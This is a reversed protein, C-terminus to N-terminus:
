QKEGRPALGYYIINFIAEKREELFRERDFSEENLLLVRIIPEGMFYFLSSGIVTLIIQRPDMKVIEGRNMAEEIIEIGPSHASLESPIAEKLANSVIKGGQSLERMIFMPFRHNKILVDIYKSIFTKLFEEFPLDSHLLEVVEDMIKKFIFKFIHVYLKEKSRYYYHLLAKNIGAKDAIEQMKAGYQGKDVFVEMAAKLIIEEKDDPKVM